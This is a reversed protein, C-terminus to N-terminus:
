GLCPNRGADMMWPFQGNWLPGGCGVIPAIVPCDPGCGNLSKAQADAPAQTADGGWPWNGKSMPRTSIAKEVVPAAFVAAAFIALFSFNM